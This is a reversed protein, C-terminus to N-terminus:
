DMYCFILDTGYAYFDGFLETSLPNVAIRNSKWTANYENFIVDTLEKEPLAYEFHM